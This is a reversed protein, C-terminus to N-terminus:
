EEAVDKKKKKKKGKKNKKGKGKGRKLSDEAAQQAASAEAAELEKQIKQAREREASWREAEAEIDKQLADHGESRLKKRYKPNTFLISTRVGKCPFYWLRVTYGCKRAVEPSFPRVKRDNGVERHCGCTKKDVANPGETEDKKPNKPDFKATGCVRDIFELKNDKAYM